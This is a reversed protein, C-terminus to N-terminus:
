VAGNNMRGIAEAHQALFGTLDRAREVVRARLAEITPGGAGGEMAKEERQLRAHAEALADMRTQIHHHTWFPTGEQQVLLPMAEPRDGSTVQALRVGRGQISGATAAELPSGQRTLLAQTQQSSQPELQLLGTDSPGIRM